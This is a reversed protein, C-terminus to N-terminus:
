FQAPDLCVKVIHEATSRWGRGIAFALVDVAVEMMQLNHEPQLHQARLESRLDLVGASTTPGQRDAASQHAAFCELLQGLDM